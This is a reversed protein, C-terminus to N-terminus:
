PGTYSNPAATGDPNRVAYMVTYQVIGATVNAVTPTLSAQVIVDTAGIGIGDPAATSAAGSFATLKAAFASNAVRGQSTLDTSAMFLATSAATGIICNAATSGTFATLTDINFQLIQSGAPLTFLNNVAAVNFVSGNYNVQKTQSVTTTGVNRLTGATTGTTSKVTGLLWPGLHTAIGM